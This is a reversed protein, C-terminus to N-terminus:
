RTTIHVRGGGGNQQQMEETKERVIQMYEERTVKKGKKPPKLKDADVKDLNIETAVIEMHRDPMEAKLILGPLQRMGRPGVKVPIQPTFWAVLTTSDEKEFLEARMCPYGMIMEQEGTIKWAPQEAEDRIIFDRTMFEQKEVVEEKELDFFYESKGAMNRFMMKMRGGEAEYTQSEPSMVSSPAYRAAEENFWLEMNMDMFEPIHEKFQQAQEPLNAHINVKETYKVVGETNQSVAVFGTALLFLSFIYKM